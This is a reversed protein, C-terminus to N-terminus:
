ILAKRIFVGTKEPVWAAIVTGPENVTVWGLGAFVIDSKERIKWEHRKLEPFEKESSMRPPSLLSGRNKEYVSEANETKTRHILLQNPVYCVYSQKPEGKIVDFRALGGLFLTQGENLQYVKPKLEKKPMITQLDKKDLFHAMQQPQIIGPTDVLVAGDDLPIEIKGLTTGPFYSTTILNKVDASLSIMQNILTSKGVNTVGVVYVDRGKRLLEIKELTQEVSTRKVASTLLIEKPHLGAVSAQERMWHLLRNEKLSKPLLDRKNALLVVPNDGVYRHFGPIMSGNFDLIDVVYLILANERRLDSLMQRFDDDTLEVDQVENYHRLRFCRQCYVEGSEMSKELVVSPVYGSLNKNETQIIAGCGICRIEENSLNSM